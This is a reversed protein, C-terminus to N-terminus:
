KRGGFKSKLFGIVADGIFHGAVFGACVGFLFSLSFM